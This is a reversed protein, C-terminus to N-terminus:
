RLDGSILRIVVSAIAFGVGLGLFVIQVLDRWNALTM